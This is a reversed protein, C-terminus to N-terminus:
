SREKNTGMKNSPRRSRRARNVSRRRRRLWNVHRHHKKWERDRRETKSIRRRYKVKRERSGFHSFAAFLRGERLPFKERSGAPFLLFTADQFLQSFPTCTNLRTNETSRELFKTIWGIGNTPTRAFIRLSGQVLIHRASFFPNFKPTKKTSNKRM